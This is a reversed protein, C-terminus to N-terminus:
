KKNNKQYNVIVQNVEPIRNSIFEYLIKHTSQRIDLLKIKFLNKELITINLAYQQQPEMANSKNNFLGKFM